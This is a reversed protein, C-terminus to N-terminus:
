SSPYSSPHLFHVSPCSSPYLAPRFITSSLTSSARLLPRTSPKSSPVCFPFSSSRAFHNASPCPGLMHMEICCCMSLITFVAMINSWVSTCVSSVSVASPLVWVGVGTRTVTSAVVLIVGVGSLVDSDGSLGVEVFFASVTGWTLRPVWTVGWVVSVAVCVATSHGLLGGLAAVDGGDSGACGGDANAVVDVVVM